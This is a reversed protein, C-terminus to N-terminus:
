KPVEDVLDIRLSFSGLIGAVNRRLDASNAVMEVGDHATLRYAAGLEDIYGLRNNATDSLQRILHEAGEGSVRYTRLWGVHKGDALVKHLGVLTREAQPAVRVDQPGVPTEEHSCSGCLLLPLVLLCRRLTASQGRM